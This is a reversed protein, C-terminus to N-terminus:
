LSFQIRVYKSWYSQIGRVPVKDPDEITERLGNFQVRVWRNLYWNVGFTAVRESASALNAARTSRSPTGPHEASGFRIQEGRAAIEFAGFGTGWGFPRKPIVYRDKKEGTLVWSGSLYWGRSILNPLDTGRLGQGLREDRVRIVEGRLSFPGPTWSLETGLRLRHGHVNIRPFYNHTAIWTRGRPSRLGEPVASETFAVGLELDKLSKLFRPPAVWSFPASALRGAFTREGSPSYDAQHIRAGDHRFWGAQYQLRSEFLKGHAMVGIDRGPALYSGILSRFVFEGSTIGNLQDLGFPIKFQGARIQFRRFHRYNGYVDRWLYHTPRARLSFAEAVENRIEREVEFEFDKTIYGQIGVRFRRLNSTEGEDGSVEPDFARFDHMLKFRFDVKLWDGLRFEPRPLFSHRIANWPLPAKKEKTVKSPPAPDTQTEPPDTGAFAVAAILTM